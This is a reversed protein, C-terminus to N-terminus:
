AASGPVLGLRRMRRELDKGPKREGRMVRSLHSQSCGLKLAAKTVNKLVTQSEIGVTKRAVPMKRGRTVQLGGLLHELSILLKNSVPKEGSEVSCIYGYSVGLLGALKQRTYGRGVRYERLDFMQEDNVNM